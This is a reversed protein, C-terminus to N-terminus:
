GIGADVRDQCKQCRGNEVIVSPKGCNACTELKETAREFAQSFDANITAFGVSTIYMKFGGRFWITYRDTAPDYEIASQKGEPVQFIWMIEKQMDIELPAREDLILAKKMSAPDPLGLLKRLEGLAALRTDSQPAPTVNGVLEIYKMLLQIREMKTIRGM